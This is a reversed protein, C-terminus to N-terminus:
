SFSNIAKIESVRGEKKAQILRVDGKLEPWDAREKDRRLEESLETLQENTPTFSALLDLGALLVSGSLLVCRTRLNPTANSGLRLANLITQSGAVQLSFPVEGPFLRYGRARLEQQPFYRWPGDGAEIVFLDVDNPAAAWPYSGVLYVSIGPGPQVIGGRILPEVAVPLFSRVRTIRELATEQAQEGRCARWSWSRKKLRLIIQECSLLELMLPAIRNGAPLIEAWAPHDVVTSSGYQEYEEHTLAPHEIISFDDYFEALASVQRHLALFSFSDSHLRASLLRQALKASIGLSRLFEQPSGANRLLLLSDRFWDNAVGQQPGLPWIPLLRENEDQGDNMFSELVQLNRLFETETHVARRAAVVGHELLASARIPGARMAFRLAEAFESANLSATLVPTNKFIERQLTRLQGGSELTMRGTIQLVDQLQEGTLSGAADALVSIAGPDFQPLWRRIVELNQHFQGSPGKARIAALIEASFSEESSSSKGAPTINAAEDLARDLSYQYQELTGETALPMVRRLWSTVNCNMEALQMAFDVTAQRYRADLKKLKERHYDIADLALWYSSPAADRREEPALEELFYRVGGSEKKGAKVVNSYVYEISSLAALYAHDDKYRWVDDLARKFASAPDKQNEAISAALGIAYRFRADSAKGMKVVHALSEDPQIGFSVLHVALQMCLFFCDPAAQRQITRLATLTAKLPLRHGAAQTRLRLLLRNLARPEVMLNALARRRLWLIRVADWM